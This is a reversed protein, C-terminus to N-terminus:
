VCLLTERSRHCLFRLHSRPATVFMTILHQNPVPWLCVAISLYAYLGVRPLLNQMEFQRTSILYLHMCLYSSFVSVSTNDNEASFTYQQNNINVHM